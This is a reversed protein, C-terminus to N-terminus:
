PITGRLYLAGRRIEVYIGGRGSAAMMAKQFDDLTEITKDNIQTLVDMKHLGAKDAPGRARVKAVVIYSRKRSRPRSGALDIEEVWFGLWEYCLLQAQELPFERAHLKVSTSAGNRSISLPIIDTAKYDKVRTRFERESRVPVDGIREILDGTQVSGNAPGKSFVFTVVVDTVRADPLSVSRIKPLEMTETAIGLWPIHVEGYSILDEVVRMARDIPIAFGMGEAADLIATNIGVVQGMLNILPGGSNGLNIAADTQILDYLVEAEGHTGGVEIDRNLASVVGTTVTHSYGYPNGIAIVTEAIMLDKATGIKAHPLPAPGDIKLVAIDSRIDWGILKGPYVNGDSAKISIRSAKRVVHANTLVHNLDDIVVGSGLSTEKETMRLPGHRFLREFIEDGFLYSREVIRETSINVVADQAARVALVAPTERVSQAREVEEAPLSVAVILAIAAFATLMFLARRKSCTGASLGEVKKM